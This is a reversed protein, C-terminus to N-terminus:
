LRRVSYMDSKSPLSIEVNDDIYKALETANGSRLASIVDDLGSVPKFASLFFVLAAGTFLLFKKMITTNQAVKDFLM